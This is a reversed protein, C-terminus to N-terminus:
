EQTIGIELEKNGIKVKQKGKAIDKKQKNIVNQLTDDKSNKINSDSKNNSVIMFGDDCMQTISDKYKTKITEWTNSDIENLVGYGKIVHTNSGVDFSINSNTKLVVIPM